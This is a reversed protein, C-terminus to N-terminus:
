FCKVLDVTVAFLLLVVLGVAHIYGEVKRNVPKKRIWEILVFVARAGDLAPIPLINFTALSVGIFGAIELLYEFGYSVYQSTISITTVPGGIADLGLKGTVLQGLAAFTSGASKFANIFGRGISEFFGYRVSLSSIRFTTSTSKIGFFENFLTQNELMEPTLGSLDYKLLVREAVENENLRSVYFYVEDGEYENLFSRLESVSFIRQEALYDAENVAYHKKIGDEYYVCDTYGDENILSEGFFEPAEATVRLFYDGAILGNVNSVTSETINFITAVNLSQLVASFDQMSESDPDCSLRIKITERRADSAIVSGEDNIGGRLVEVDVLDGQKKGKLASILDTTLYITKGNLKTIVDGAQLSYASSATPAVEFAQYSTQGYAGFAIMFILIAAIFNMTAGAILVLIRQWPKKNNFANADSNGDEDEGEFACFGGLPLIRISFVEGNSKTKKFIAPGMGIAFENIKFGFLKGVLYHGAEHVTIMFLLILVAIIISGVSGLASAANNLYIM